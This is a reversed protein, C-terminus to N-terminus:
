EQEMTDDSLWAKIAPHHQLLHRIQHLLVRIRAASLGVRRGVEPVALDAEAWLKFISVLRPDAQEALVTDILAALEQAAVLIEPHDEDPIPADIHSFQELSAPYGARKAARADRLTRQVSHIIVQHAWTSFRSAYRFGPLARALEARAVQALDEADFSLDDSNTLGTHRLIRIVQPMWSQWIANHQEHQRDQLAQVLAHDLHYCTVLQRLQADSCPVPLYHLLSETYRQQDDRNLHWSLETNLAAVMTACRDHSSRHDEM